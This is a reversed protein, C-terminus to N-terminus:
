AKQWEPHFISNWVTFEWSHKMFALSIVAFITDESKKSISEQFHHSVEPLAILFSFPSTTTIIEKVKAIDQGLEQWERAKKHIHVSLQETTDSVTVGHVPGWAGRDMSNELRSYQPPNGNREGPFRGLGPISHMDEANALLNFIM